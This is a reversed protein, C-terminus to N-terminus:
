GEYVVGYDDVYTGSGHAKTNKVYGQYYSGDPAIPSVVMYLCEEVYVPNEIEVFESLKGRFVALTVRDTIYM